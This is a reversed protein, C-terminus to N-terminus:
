RELWIWLRLTGMGLTRMVPQEDPKPTAMARRNRSRPQDTAAVM